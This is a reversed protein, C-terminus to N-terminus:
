EDWSPGNAPEETPFYEQDFSIHLFEEEYADAREAYIAQAAQLALDEQQFVKATGFAARVATPDMGEYRDDFEFLDNPNHLAETDAVPAVRYENGNGDPAKTKLIVIALTGEDRLTDDYDDVDLMCDPM